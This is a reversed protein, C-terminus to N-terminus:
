KKVAAPADFSVGMLQGRLGVVVNVQTGAYGGLAAPGGYERFMEGAKEDSLWKKVPRLGSSPAEASEGLWLNWGQIRENEDNTFDVRIMGLFVYM